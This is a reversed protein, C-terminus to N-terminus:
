LGHTFDDLSQQLSAQHAHADQPGKDAATNLWEMLSSHSHPDIRPWTTGIMGERHLQVIRLVVGLDQLNKSM